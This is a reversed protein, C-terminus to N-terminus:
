RACGRRTSIVDGILEDFQDVGITLLEGPYRAAVMMKPVHYLGTEHGDRM